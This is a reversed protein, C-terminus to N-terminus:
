FESTATELVKTLCSNKESDVWQSTRPHPHLANSLGHSEDWLYIGGNLRRSLEQTEALLALDLAVFPENKPVAYVSAGCGGLPFSADNLLLIGCDVHHAGKREIAAKKRRTM